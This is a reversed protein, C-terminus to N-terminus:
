KVKARPWNPKGTRPARTQLVAELTRPMQKPVEFLAAQVTNNADRYSFRFFHRRQRAKFLRVAIAPLVGLHWTVEKSYEYSEISVYPIELKNGAQVFILSAESTTDLRGITGATLSPVTGGVYRAHGNELASVSASLLLLFCYPLIKKV